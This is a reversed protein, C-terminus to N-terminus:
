GCSHSGCGHSGCSHGEDHHDHHNCRVNPDFSLRGAALAEAAEDAGAASLYLANM